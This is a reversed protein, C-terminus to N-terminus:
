DQKPTLRPIPLHSPLSIEDQLYVARPTCKHLIANFLSIHMHQPLQKKKWSKIVEKSEEKTMSLIVFGEFLLRALRNEKKNPDEYQLAYSFSIKSAESEKKLLDLQAKEVNTFSIDNIINAKKFPASKEALIKTLNFGIIQM